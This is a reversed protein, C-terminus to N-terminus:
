KLASFPKGIGKKIQSLSEGTLTVEENERHAV